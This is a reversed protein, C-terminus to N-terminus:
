VFPNAKERHLMYATHRLTPSSSFPLSDLQGDGVSWHGRDGDVLDAIFLFYRLSSPKFVLMQEETRYRPFDFTLANAPKPDPSSGSGPERQIM